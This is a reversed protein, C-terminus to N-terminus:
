EEIHLTKDYFSLAQSYDGKDAYVAGINNYVVASLPDNPAYNYGTLNKGLRYRYFLDSRAPRDVPM